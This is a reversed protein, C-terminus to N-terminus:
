CTHFTCCRTMEATQLWQARGVQFATCLLFSVFLTVDKPSVSALWESFGPDVEEKKWKIVEHKKAEEERLLREREEEESEHREERHGDGGGEGNALLPATLDSGDVRETKEKAKKESGKTPKIELERGERHAYSGAVFSLTALCIARLLALLILDLSDSRFHTLSSIFGGPTLLSPDVFKGHITHYLVQM